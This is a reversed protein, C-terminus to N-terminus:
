GILEPEGAYIPSTVTPSGAHVGDGTAARGAHWSSAVTPVGAHVSHSITRFLEFVGVGTGTAVAGGTKAYVMAPVLLTDGGGVATASAGGSRNRAISCAGRAAAPARGGGTKLYATASLTSRAGSATAAAVSGGTKSHVTATSVAKAGSGVGSSAGGGTKSYVTGTSVLKSGSSAASAIAGGTKSYTTASTTTRAGVGAASSAAGGTKSYVAGGFVTVSGVATPSTAAGGTKDYVTASTTARTGSGAGALVAGGTKPHSVNRTGGCALDSVAGGTKTVATSRGGSAAAPSAAGGTKAHEVTRAAVGAPSSAAGGTKSHALQRAGSGAASSAGGGTKDHVVAKAGGGALSSAAGGTKSHVLQRSGTGAGPSAAGGTKASVTSRSGVGAAPSSGGGTKAYTTTRNGGGAGASTAGGTKAHATSRAGVGVAASAGGGTKDYTTSSSLSSLALLHATKTYAAGSNTGSGQVTGSSGAASQLLDAGATLRSSPAGSPSIAAYGSPVVWAVVEWSAAFWVLMRNTGTTTVSVAPSNTTTAGGSTNGLYDDVPTGSTAVNRLAVAFGTRWVSGTWSFTYTGTDAGTTRKWFVVSDHDQAGTASQRGLQTFGTPPTITATTELYLLVLVIDNAAVGAPVAIAASASNGETLYAGTAVLAPLSAVTKAGSGAGASAGGGTKSYTTGATYTVYADIPGTNSGTPTGFPNPPTPGSTATQEQRQGATADRSILVQLTGSPDPDNWAVGIWYQTGSTVTIQNAGSFTYVQEAETTATAPIVLVDSQALLAGPAGSSDAYIVFRTNFSASLGAQVSLRAQGTQVTGTSSPTAASVWVRPASSGSSGTGDTTKGFTAV